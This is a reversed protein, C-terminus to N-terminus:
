RIHFFELRKNAEALEAQLETKEEAVAEEIERSVYDEFEAIVTEASYMVKSLKDGTVAMYVRPIQEMIFYFDHLEKKIQEVNLENDKVVIEKWFNNTDLEAQLSDLKDCAKGLSNCAEFLLQENNSVEQELARMTEYVKKGKQVVQRAKVIFEGAKPQPCDCALYAPQSPDDPGFTPNVVAGSGGCTKCVPQEAKLAVIAKDLEANAEEALIEEDIIKRAEEIHKEIIEKTM